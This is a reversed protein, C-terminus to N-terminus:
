DGSIGRVLEFVALAIPSRLLMQNQEMPQIQLLAGMARSLQLRLPKPLQSTKSRVAHALANQILAAQQPRNSALADLAASFYRRFIKPSVFEVMGLLMEATVHVASPLDLQPGRMTNLAATVAPDFAGPNRGAMYLLDASRLNIFEQNREIKSSMADVYQAHSILNEDQAAMLVPQVNVSNTIGIAIVSRRLGADETLLVADRELCLYVCDLTANDLLLGLTRHEDTLVAPGLVPTVECLEDICSLIEQFLEIRRVLFRQPQTRHDPGTGHEPFDEHTPLRKEADLLGSLEDRVSTPVLPKGLLPVASRFLGLAVFEGLTLLDLVYRRQRSRLTALQADREEALGLSVFMPAKDHPWGLVLELTHKGLTKALTSLPFRSKRYGELLFGERQKRAQAPALLKDVDIQGDPGQLNVSWAPGDNSAATHLLMGARRAAFSLISDVGAIECEVPGLNRDLVVIDGNTKGALAKAVTSDTGVLEPWSARATRDTDIAIEFMEGPTKLLVSTGPGIQQTASLEAPFNSIFIQALYSGAIMTDSPNDRLLRYLRQLAQIQLGHQLEYKAFEVEASTHNGDFSPNSSLYDTFEGPVPMMRYLAGVYNLAVTANQPHQALETRLLDATRVWDGKRRALEAELRRFDSRELVAVPLQNMLQQAKMRQDSEILCYIYKYTLVDAGPTHVLRAYLAAAKAYDHLERLLDAALSVELSSADQAAALEEVDHACLAAALDEGSRSLMRTLEVQGLMHSPHASVHAKAQVVAQEKAGANWLAHLSLIALDQRERESLPRLDLQSAAREFVDPVNLNSAAEAIAVLAVDPMQALQGEALKRLGGLDKTEEIEDIRVRLLNSAFPHRMLALNAIKRARAVEGLLLLCVVANSSVEFSAADHQIAPITVELSEHVLLAYRLAQSKGLELQGLQSAVPDSLAWSLATALLMRNLEFSPKENKTCRQIFEFAEEPRGQQHRIGSMTFLVDTTDRLHSPIDKGPDAEGSALEAAARLAWLLSSQPYKALGEDIISLAQPVDHLLMHAHAKNRYAKELEPLISAGILYERAAEESRNSMLLASAKTAHWRSEAPADAFLAPDGLNELLELVDLPRGLLLKERALDLQRTILPQAQTAQKAAAADALAGLVADSVGQVAVLTAETTDRIQLLTGGPFGPIYARAVEPHKRLLASLENWFHVSVGCKGQARRLSNLERIRTVVAAKNAATTAFIVHNVVVNSGDLKGLDGTVTALTFPTNVYHKCQIGVDKGNVTGILDLGFQSQGTSGLRNLFPDNWDKSYLHFCMEEFLEETEPFQLDNSVAM